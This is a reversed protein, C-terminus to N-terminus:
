IKFIPWSNVSSPGLLGSFV